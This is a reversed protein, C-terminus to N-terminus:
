LLLESDDCRCKLIVIKYDKISYEEYAIKKLSLKDMFRKYEIEMRDSFIFCKRESEKVKDYYHPTRDYFGSKDNLRPSIIIDENTLFTIPYATWYDSYGYKIKHSRLLDVVENYSPSKFSLHFTAFKYISNFVLLSSVLWRYKEKIFWVFTGVVLFSAYIFPFTYRPKSFKVLALFFLSVVFFIVAVDVLFDKEYRFRRILMVFSLIVLLTLPFGFTNIIDGFLETTSHSFGLFMGGLRRISAFSNQLNYLIFPSFGFLFGLEFAIRKKFYGLVKYRFLLILSTIFFPIYIPQHYVGFGNLFGILFLYLFSKDKESVLKNLYFVCAGIAFCEIYSILLYTPSHPLILLLPLLIRFPYNFLLSFFFVGCAEWFLAVIKLFAPNFGFIKFLFAILYSSITGAYHNGWLFLPFEKGELIYKAMVGFVAEDANFPFDRKILFYARFLIFVLFSILFLTKSERKM